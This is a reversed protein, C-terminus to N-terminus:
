RKLIAFILVIALLSASLACGQPQDAASFVDPQSVTIEQSASYENGAADKWSLAIPRTGLPLALSVPGEASHAEGAVLVKPSVPSGIEVFSLNAYLKGNAYSSQVKDLMLVPQALVEALRSESDQQGSSSIALTAAQAGPSSPTFEFEFEQPASLRSVAQEEHPGFSFSLAIDAPYSSATINARAVAEKGAILVSPLVFSEISVAQAESGSAYSLLQWGGGGAAVYVPVSGTAATSFAIESAAGGATARYIGDPLVAIFEKGRRQKPVKLLVSNEEEPAASSKQLRAEFPPLSSESPDVRIALTSHELYPSNLTLPCSYVYNRALSSSANIEWVLTSNKGPELVLYKESEDLEV